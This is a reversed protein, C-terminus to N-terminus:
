FYKRTRWERECQKRSRRLCFLYNYIHKGSKKEREKWIKKFQALHDAQFLASESNFPILMPYAMLDCTSCTCKKYQCKIIKNVYFNELYQKLRKKKVTPNKITYIYQISPFVSKDEERERDGGDDARGAEKEM